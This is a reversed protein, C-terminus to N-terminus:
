LKELEKLFKNHLSTLRSTPQQEQRAINAEDALLRSFKEIVEKITETRVQNLLRESFDSSKRYHMADQTLQAIVEQDNVREQILLNSITLILKDQDTPHMREIALGGEDSPLNRIQEEWNPKTM